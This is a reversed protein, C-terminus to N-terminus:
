KSLAFRQESYFKKGRRLQAIKQKAAAVDVNGQPFM